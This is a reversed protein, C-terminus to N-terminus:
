AASRWWRRWWHPCSSCRQRPSAWCVPSGDEPWPRPAAACGSLTHRHIHTAQPSINTTHTAGIRTRAAALSCSLHTCPFHATKLQAAKHASIAAKNPRPHSPVCSLHWRFSKKSNNSRRARANTVHGLASLSCVWRWLRLLHAVDAFSARLSSVVSVLRVLQAREGVLTGILPTFVLIFPLKSYVAVRYRTASTKFRSPKALGANYLGSLVSVLAVIPMIIPTQLAPPGGAWMYPASAYAFLVASSLTHAIRSLFADIAVM